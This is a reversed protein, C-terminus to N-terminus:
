KSAEHRKENMFQGVLNAGWGVAALGIGVPVILPVAAAVAPVLASAAALGGVTAAAAGALRLKNDTLPGGEKLGKVEVATQWVGGLISGIGTLAGNLGAAGGKLLAGATHFVGYGSVYFGWQSTPNKAVKGLVKDEVSGGLYGVGAGIGAGIVAAGAALGVLGLPSLLSGAAIWNIFAAPLGIGLGGALGGGIAGGWLGMKARPGEAKAEVKPTRPKAPAEAANNAAPAAATAKIPRAAIPRNGSVLM